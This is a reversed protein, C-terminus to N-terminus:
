VHDVHEIQGSAAEELKQMQGKQISKITQQRARTLEVSLQHELTFAKVLEKIIHPKLLMYREYDIKEEPKVASTSDQSTKNDSSSSSSSSSSSNPIAGQPKAEISAAEIASSSGKEIPTATSSPPPAKISLIRDLEESPTPVLRGQTILEALYRSSSMAAPLIFSILM